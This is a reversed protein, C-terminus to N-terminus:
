AKKAEKELEVKLRAEANENLKKLRALYADRNVLPHPGSPKLARITPILESLGSSFPHATLDM